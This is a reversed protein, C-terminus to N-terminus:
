QLRNALGIAKMILDEYLRQAETTLAAAELTQKQASQNKVNKQVDEELAAKLSLSQLILKQIQLFLEDEKESNLNSGKLLMPELRYAETKLQTLAQASEVLSWKIKKFAYTEDIEVFSTTEGELGGGILATKSSVDIASTEKFSRLEALLTLLGQSKRRIEQYLLGIEVDAVSTQNRTRSATKLQETSLIKVAHDNLYRLSLVVSDIESLSDRQKRNKAKNSETLAKRLAKVQSELQDFYWLVETLDYKIAM